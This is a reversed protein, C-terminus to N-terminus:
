RGENKKTSKRIKVTDGKELIIRTGPIQFDKEIIIKQQSVSISSESKISFKDREIAIKRNHDLDWLIAHRSTEDIFFARFSGKFKPAPSFEVGGGRLPKEVECPGDYFIIMIDEKDYSPRRSNPIITLM